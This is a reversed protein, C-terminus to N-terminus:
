RHRHEREVSKYLTIDVDNKVLEFLDSFLREFGRQVRGLGVSVMAVKPLPTM